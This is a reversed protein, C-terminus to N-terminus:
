RPLSRNPRRPAGEGPKAAHGAHPVPRRVGPGDGGLSDEGLPNPFQPPLPPLPPPPTPPTLPSPLTPHLPPFFFFAISDQRRGLRSQRDGTQEIAANTRGCPKWDRSQNAVCPNPRPVYAPAVVRYEDARIPVEQWEPGSAPGTIKVAGGQAPHQSAARRRRRRQRLRERSFHPPPEPGDPRPAPRIARATALLRAARRPDRRRLVRVALKKVPGSARPDRGPLARAPRSHNPRHDLNTQGRVPSKKM